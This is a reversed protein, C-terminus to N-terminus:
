PYFRIGIAADLNVGYNPVIGILPGVEFFMELPVNKLIVNIGFLVRAGIGLSNNNRYYFKDHDEKYWAGKGNGLGFVLGPGAYM